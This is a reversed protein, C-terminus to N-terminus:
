NHTSLCDMRRRSEEPGDARLGSDWLLQWLRGYLGRLGDIISRLGAASKFNAEADSMHDDFFACGFPADAHIDCLNNGNLFRCSNDNKRSPVLTPIRFLAGQTMVVAGPSALLNGMAWSFADSGAPVLRDLDAPILYGPIFRCNRACSQCSCQTRMFGFESRSLVAVGSM